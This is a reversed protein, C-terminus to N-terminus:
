PQEHSFGGTGFWTPLYTFSIKVLYPSRAVNWHDALYSGPAPQRNFYDDQNCDITDANACLAPERYTAMVDGYDTAHFEGTSNPASLQVAGLTHLLEHTVVYVVLCKRAIWANSSGLNWNDTPRDDDFIHALGCIDDRKEIVILKTLPLAPLRDADSLWLTDLECEPTMKWAPLLVSQGDFSDRYFLGNVRTVIRRLDQAIAARDDDPQLRWVFRVTHETRKPDCHILTPLPAAQAAIVGPDFTDVHITPTVAAQLLLSLAFALVTMFVVKM